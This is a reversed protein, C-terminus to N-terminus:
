SNVGPRLRFAFTAGVVQFRAAVGVFCLHRPEHQHLVSVRRGERGIGQVPHVGAEM